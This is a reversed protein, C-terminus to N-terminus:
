TIFGQQYILYPRSMKWREKKKLIKNKCFNEKTLLAQLPFSSFFYRPHVSHRSHGEHCTPSSLRWMSAPCTYKQDFLIRLPIGHNGRANPCTHVSRLTTEDNPQKHKRPYHTKNQRQSTSASATTAREHRGVDFLLKPSKNRQPLFIKPLLGSRQHRPLNCIWRNYTHSNAYCIAIVEILSFGTPRASSSMIVCGDAEAETRPLEASSMTHDALKEKTWSCWM